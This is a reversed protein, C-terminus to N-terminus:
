SRDVNKVIKEKGRPSKQRLKQSEGIDRSVMEFEIATALLRIKAFIYEGGICAATTWYWVVFILM